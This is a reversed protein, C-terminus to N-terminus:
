QSMARYMEPSEFRDHVPIPYKNPFRSDSTYIFNGGFMLHGPEGQNIPKGNVYPEAHLYTSGFLERKKLVLYPENEKVESPSSISEHVLIISENNVSVGNLACKRTLKCYYFQVPLGKLNNM